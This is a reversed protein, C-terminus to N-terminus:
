SPRSVASRAGRWIAFAILVTALSGTAVGALPVEPGGYAIPAVSAAIVAGIGFLIALKAGWARRMAVGIAAPIGALGYTLVAVHVVTQLPTRARSFDGIANTFGSYGGIALLVITAIWGAVRWRSRTPQNDVARGPTEVNPM